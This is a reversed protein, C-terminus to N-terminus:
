GQPKVLAELEQVVQGVDAALPADRESLVDAVERLYWLQDEPGANFRQWLAEGERRYDRVMAATNHLKDAATVRLASATAEEHLHKLYAKKRERWPPKPHVTTDSCAEVTAAVDPGFRRAIDESSTLGPCDELADHLLAAIAEDESGGSELVLAAVALLHSVYPVETGKRCQGHHLREAYVLAEPFRPGLM